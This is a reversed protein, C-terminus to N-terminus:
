YTTAFQMHASKYPYHIPTYLTYTYILSSLFTDKIKITLKNKNIFYYYAVFIINSLNIKM